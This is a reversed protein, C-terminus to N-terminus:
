EVDFKKADEKKLHKMVTGDDFIIQLNEENVIEHILPRYVNRVCMFIVM